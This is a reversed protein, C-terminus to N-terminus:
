LCSHAHTHRTAYTPTSSFFADTLRGVVYVEWRVTMRNAACMEVSTSKM